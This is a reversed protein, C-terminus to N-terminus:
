PGFERTSELANRMCKLHIAIGSGSICSAMRNAHYIAINLADVVLEERMNKTMSRGDVRRSFVDLVVALFM